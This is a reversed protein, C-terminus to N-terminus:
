KAKKPLAKKAASKEKKAKPKKELKEEVAKEGGAVAEVKEKEPKVGKGEVVSEVLYNIIFGISQVADDNAPIGYTVLSPDANSDVIGVVPVGVRVAELVATKERHTDVVVLADPMKTLGVLGGFFKELRSVERDILLNEKKTYHALQGTAKKSKLDTMRDVSKKVQEFNTLLGGIWRQVISPSGVKGAAEKILDQSQRKTGVWLIIGGKSSVGKLFEGAKELGEKTKVLDFIHVGERSGYIYPQMKPNWRNVQHGFHSGAELLDKLSVDKM